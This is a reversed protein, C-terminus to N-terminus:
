APRTTCGCTLAISLLVLPLVVTLLAVALVTVIGRVWERTPIADGDEPRTADTM